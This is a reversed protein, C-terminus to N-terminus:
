DLRWLRLGEFSVKLATDSFTQAWLGVDGRPFTGDQIEATFEDNLFFRCTSARCRVRLRNTAAGRRVHPWPQWLQLPTLEGQHVLAITYYGDGGIAFLYYNAADQYRYLVGYGVDESPLLSRVDLQLEFDAVPQSAVAWARQDSGALQIQHDADTTASWGEGYQRWVLDPATWDPPRHPTPSRWGLALAAVLGLGIVLGLVILALYGRWLWLPVVRM